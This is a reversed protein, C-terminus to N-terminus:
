FANISIGAGFSISVGLASVTQHISSHFPFRGPNVVTANSTASTNVAGCCAVASGSALSYSVPFYISGGSAGQVNTRGSSRGTGSASVTVSARPGAAAVTDLANNDLILIDDALVNNGYTSLLSATVLSTIIIGQKLM